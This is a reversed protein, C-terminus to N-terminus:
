SQRIDDAVQSVSRDGSQSLEQRADVAATLSQFRYPHLDLYDKPMIANRSQLLDDAREDCTVFLDRVPIPRAEQVWLSGTTPRLQRQVQRSNHTRCGLSSKQLPPSVRHRCSIRGMAITMHTNAVGLSNLDREDSSGQAAPEVRIFATSAPVLIEELADGECSVLRVALILRERVAVRFLAKTLSRGSIAADIVM